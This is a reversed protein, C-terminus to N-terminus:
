DLSSLGANINAAICIRPSIRFSYFLLVRHFNRAPRLYSSLYLLVRELTLAYRRYRRTSKRHESTREARCECLALLASKIQPVSWYVAMIFDISKCRLLQLNSFRGGCAESTIVDANFDRRFTQMANHKGPPCLFCCSITAKRMRCTYIKCMIFCQNDLIGRLCLPFSLHNILHYSNKQLFFNRM